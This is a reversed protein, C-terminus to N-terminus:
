LKINPNLLDYPLVELSESISYLLSISLNQEGKEIRQISRIDIDCFTALQSQTMKKNVRLKKIRKGITSLEFAFNKNV